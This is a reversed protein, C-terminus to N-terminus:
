QFAGASGRHNPGQLVRIDSMNFTARGRAKSSSIPGWGIGQGLTASRSTAASLDAPTDRIAHAIEVDSSTHSLFVIPTADDAM